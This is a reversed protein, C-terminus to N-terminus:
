RKNELPDTNIRYGVIKIKGKEERMTFFEQTKMKEREVNYVLLYEGQPNNGEVVFTEAKVLTHNLIKGYDNNSQSFILNFKSKDTAEFFNDSFLSETEKGNDNIVKNYFDNTIKEAEQKDQERNQHTYNCGMVLLLTVLFVLYKKM